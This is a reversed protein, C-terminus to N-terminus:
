RTIRITKTEGSASAILRGNVDVMILYGTNATSGTQPDVPIEAMYDPVITDEGDGARALDFCTANTGICRLTTPFNSANPNGDTDPLDGSHESAYQYIASLIAILDAERQADRAKALQRAPNVAVILTSSLIGIIAVVLLLEILTLGKTLFTKM